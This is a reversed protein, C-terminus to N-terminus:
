GSKKAPLARGRPAICLLLQSSSGPALPQDTFDGYREVVRLRSAAIQAELEAPFYKRQSLVVCSEEDRAIDRYFLRILAIQGIPDYTHSTTYEVLRGTSPHRFRTRAWRRRPDRSLWEPDPVQVDFAFLGGPPLHARVRRLCADLEVRTYLHEVVNFAAVILPAKVGLRFDLLDGQRVSVRQRIASPTRSLRTRLSALMAPARDVAIVHYGARALALTVRGTGCGLDIITGGPSVTRKAIRVYAAVDIRRRRYEYDYLAADAYHEWSGPEVLDGWDKQTTRRRNRAM